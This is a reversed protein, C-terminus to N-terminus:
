VKLEGIKTKTASAKYARRRREGGGQEGGDQKSHPTTLVKGRKLAKSGHRLEGLEVSQMGTKEVTGLGRRM